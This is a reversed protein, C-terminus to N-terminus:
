RPLQPPSVLPPPEPTPPPLLALDPTHPNTRRTQGTLAAASAPRRWEIGLCNQSSRTERAVAATVGGRIAEANRPAHTRPHLRASSPPLSPPATVPEGERPALRQSKAGSPLLPKGLACVGPSSRSPSPLARSGGWGSPRPAWGQGHKPSWAGGFSPIRISPFLRQPSHPDPRAASCPLPCVPHARRSSDGGRPSRHWAPPRRRTVDFSGLEADVKGMCMRSIRM